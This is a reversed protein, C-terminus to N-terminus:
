HALKLLLLDYNIKIIYKTLSTQLFYYMNKIMQTQPKCAEIQSLNLYFFKDLLM